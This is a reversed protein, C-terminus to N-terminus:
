KSHSTIFAEKHIEELFDRRHKPYGLFKLCLVVSTFNMRKVFLGVLWVFNARGFQLKFNMKETVETEESSCGIKLITRM